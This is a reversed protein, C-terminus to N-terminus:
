QAPVALNPHRALPDRAAQPTALIPWFRTGKVADLRIVAPLQTTGEGTPPWRASCAFDAGCYSLGGLDGPWSAVTLPTRDSSRYRLYTRAAAPDFDLEWSIRTPVGAMGDIPSVSLGTFSRADGTFQDAGGQKDPLLGEVSGRFWGAILTPVDTGELFAALRIRIDLVRQFSFLLISSIAAVIVLVVLVEIITFGAAKPHRHEVKGCNM